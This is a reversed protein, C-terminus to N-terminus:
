GPRVARSRRGAPSYGVPIRNRVRRPDAQSRLLEHFHNSGKRVEFGPIPIPAPRDPDSPQVAPRGVLWTWPRKRM